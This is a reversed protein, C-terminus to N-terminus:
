KPDTSEKPEQQSEQKDSQNADEDPLNMGSLIAIEDHLMKIDDGSFSRLAFQHRENIDEIDSVLGHAVLRAQCIFNFRSWKRSLGNAKEVWENRELKSANDALEPITSIDAPKPQEACYESFDYRDLGSIQKIEVDKGNVSVIKNKLFESM